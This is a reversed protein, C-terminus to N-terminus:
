LVSDSESDVAKYAQQVTLTYFAKTKTKLKICKFGTWYLKVLNGTHVSCPIANTKGLIEQALVFCIQPDPLVM